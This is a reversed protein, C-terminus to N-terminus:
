SSSERRLARVADNLIELAELVQRRQASPVADLLRGFRARSETQVQRAVRLGQATLEIERARGDVTSRRQSVHGAREMRACLRAISSKDLGLSAALDKQRCPALGAGELLMQLAHAHSLQLPQGCPTKSESLLGFGRVFSQVNERLKVCQGVNRAV